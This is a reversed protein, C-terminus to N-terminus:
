GEQNQDYIPIIQENSIALGFLSIAALDFSVMENVPPLDNFPFFKGALGERVTISHVKATTLKSEYFIRKRINQGFYSCNIDLSLFHSPDLIKINLEEYIERKIANIPSERSECAGGFLGWKSPFFISKKKDRKQLFFENKENYLVCGVSILVM